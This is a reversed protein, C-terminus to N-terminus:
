LASPAPLAEPGRCIGRALAACAAAEAYSTSDLSQALAEATIALLRSQRGRHNLIAASPAASCVGPAAGRLLWWRGSRAPTSCTAAAARRRSCRQLFLAGVLDPARSVWWCCASLHAWNRPPRGPVLGPKLPSPCLGSRPCLPCASTAGLLHSILHRVARRGPCGGWRGPPLGAPRAAPTKPVRTVVASRPPDKSRV